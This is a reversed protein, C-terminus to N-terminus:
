SSIIGVDKLDSKLANIQQALGETFVRQNEVALRVTNLDALRAAQLLDLLGGAFATSLVQPTYSPMTRNSSAYGSNAYGSPVASPTHAMLGLAGILSGTVGSSGGSSPTVLPM